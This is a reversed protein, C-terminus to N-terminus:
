LPTCLLCTGVSSCRLDQEDYRDVFEKRRGNATSLLTSNPAVYACNRLEFAVGTLRWHRYHYPHIISGKHSSDDTVRVIRM